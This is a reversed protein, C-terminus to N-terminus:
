RKESICATKRIKEVILFFSDVSSAVFDSFPSVKKWSEEVIRAMFCFVGHKV